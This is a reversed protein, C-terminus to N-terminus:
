APYVPKPVVGGAASVAADPRRAHPPTRGLVDEVYCRLVEAASLPSAVAGGPAHPGDGDCLEFLHGLGVGRLHALCGALASLAEARAAPTPGSARLLAAVYPGLLWPHASGNHAAWDRAAVHGAHRGAYRSDAPSLTRVGLPTLLDARVKNVVAAWRGPDLVAFPLSVALLQNPRVSGDSRASGDHRAADDAATGTGGADAAVVDYCCGADANWFRANFAQSARAALAELPDADAPRDARRCLDAASLLANYWLANVEVPLGHRPTLPGDASRNEMWTAATREDGCRLLGDATVAVGRGTGRRYADIVALVAPLLHRRVFLDDGSYLLYQRVAHVFWLSVDAGRASPSAGDTPFDTPLLGGELRGVMAALLSRGLTLRGPVLFTGAFGVLASRFSPTSWHYQGVAPYAEGDPDALLHDGTARVLAAGDPDGALSGDEGFPAPLGFSAPVGSPAATGFSALASSPGTGSAPRRVLRAEAERAQRDALDVVGPLDVPDTSCAFHVKQGPQLRVHTAGPSWLDELGAYGGEAERRYIQNLYWHGRRDFAGDHAFFVEPTRRTAPVQWHGPGRAVADLKGNWQYALEHMGRLALLPRIELDIGHGGGLLTYTLLVTNEGRVLRLEKQLTWGDAQYAWRPHPDPSFARLHEHGRPWVAGPYENCALFWERGDCRVTEEVRSLLVMRRVPPAMAAVLLGHYRRTNLGCVSSSAYGGVANTVLWERALLGDFDLNAVAIGENV